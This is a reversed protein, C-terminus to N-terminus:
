NKVIAVFERSATAADDPECLFTEIIANVREPHRLHVNHKGDDILELRAHSIREHFYDAHFEPVMPDLAGHIVLTKCVVDQLRSTCVDGGDEYVREIAAFWQSWVAQLGGCEADAGGYVAELAERMKVSWQSVDRVAEYAEIDEDAVFANGGLLVLRSVATPHKAALIAASNAGDSWGFVAYRDHGLSQMLAAADDADREWYNGDPYAADEACYDRRPPRSRGYGRPDFSLVERRSSLGALQPAFDTEATGLAGCLCLLPLTADDDVDADATHAASTSPTAPSTSNPECRVTWLSVDRGAVDTYSRDYLSASTSSCM